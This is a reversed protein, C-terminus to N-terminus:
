QNSCDKSWIEKSEKLINSILYCLFACLQHAIRDVPNPPLKTLLCETSASFIRKSHPCSSRRRVSNTQPLGREHKRTYCLDSLIKRWISQIKLYRMGFATTVEVLLKEGGWKWDPEVFRKSPPHTWYTLTFSSFRPFTQTRPERDGHTQTVSMASRCLQCNKRYFVLLCFQSKIIRKKVYSASIFILVPLSLFICLM